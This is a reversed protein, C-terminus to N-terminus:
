VNCGLTPVAVDVDVDVCNSEATRELGRADERNHTLLLSARPLEGPASRTCNGAHPAPADEIGSRSCLSRVM